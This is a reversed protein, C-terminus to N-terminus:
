RNKIYRNGPLEKIIGDLEFITLTALKQATSIGPLDIEEITLPKDYTLASYILRDTDSYESLDPESTIKEEPPEGEDNLVPKPTCVKKQLKNKRKIYSNYIKKAPSYDYLRDTSLQYKYLYRFDEIIDSARTLPTAGEKILQNTGLANTEGIKGPVSFVRRGQKIAYKATILSGSGEDAEFIVTCQCLGSILRNRQPYNKPTTHYFPHYETILLGNRAIYRMLDRNSAPYVKNIRNGLVAITRGGADIAGKHVSTDIGAALGSVVIAGARALDYSISYSVDRGYVTMSRTGVGAVCFLADIDYLEGIYYLVIPADDLSALRRPYTEDDYCLIGVKNDECWRVIQEAMDTNKDSLHKKQTPTLKNDKHEEKEFIAKPDYSYNGLLRHVGTSAPGFCLSLWIWYVEKGM